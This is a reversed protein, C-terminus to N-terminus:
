PMRAQSPNEDFFPSSSYRFLFKPICPSVSSWNRHREVLSLWRTDVNQYPLVLTAQMGYETSVECETIFVLWEDFHDFSTLICTLPSFNELKTTDDM